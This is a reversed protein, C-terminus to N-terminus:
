KMISDRRQATQRGGACQWGAVRSGKCTVRSGMAIGEGTEILGLFVETALEEAKPMPLLSTPFLPLARSLFLKLLRSTLGRTELRKWPFEGVSISMNKCIPVSENGPIPDCVDPRIAARIMGAHSRKPCPFALVFNVVQGVELPEPNNNNNNNKERERRPCSKRAEELNQQFRGQESGM